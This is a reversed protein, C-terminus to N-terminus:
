FCVFALLPCVTDAVVWDFSYASLGKRALFKAGRSGERYTHVVSTRWSPVRLLSLIEQMLPNFYALRSGGPNIIDVMVKSDLEFIVWSLEM